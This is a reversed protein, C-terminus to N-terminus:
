FSFVFRKSLVHDNCYLQCAKSGLELEFVPLLSAPANEQVGRAQGQATLNMSM